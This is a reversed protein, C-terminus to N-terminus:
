QISKKWNNYSAVIQPLDDYTLKKNAIEEPLQPHDKFYQPANRSFRWKSIVTPKSGKVYLAFAKTNATGGGMMPGGPTMIMIPGGQQIELCDLLYVPGSVVAKMIQGEFSFYETEEDKYGRIHKPYYRVEEKGPMQFYVFDRFKPKGFSVPQRVEGFLTDGTALILYEKQQASLSFSISLAAGLAFLSIFRRVM